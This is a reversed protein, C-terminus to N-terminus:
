STSDVVIVDPRQSALADKVQHGTNVIAVHFNREELEPGFSRVNKRKGEILLIKAQAAMM